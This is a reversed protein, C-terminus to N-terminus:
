TEEDGKLRQFHRKQLDKGGKEKRKAETEAM